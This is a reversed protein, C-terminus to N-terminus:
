LVSVKAVPVDTILMHGSRHTIAFPIAAERIALQPTIGCAWFVPIEGKPLGNPAEFPVGYDPKALSGIGIQAPDGIHIPAGHLRPFNTTIQIARIADRGNFSRLSVVMRGQFIGSRRNEITTVFCPGDLGKQTHPLPVGSSMIAQEFSLSCGLAFVVLDDRWLDSIDTVDGAIEGNKFIRYGPLDTRMDINDALSPLSPDGPASMELLPCAEPNKQCFGLFDFAYQRPLIAINAQVHAPAYGVTGTTHAGRRIAARCARPDNRDFGVAASPSMPITMM